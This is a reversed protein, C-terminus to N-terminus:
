CKRVLSFWLDAPAGSRSYKSPQDQTDNDTPMVGLILIDSRSSDGHMTVAPNTGGRFILCCAHSFCDLLERSVYLMCEKVTVYSIFPHCFRSSAAGWNTGGFEFNRRMESLCRLGMERCSVEVTVNEWVRVRVATNTGPPVFVGPQENTSEIREDRNGNIRESAGEKSM